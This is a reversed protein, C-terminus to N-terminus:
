YLFVLQCFHHYWVTLVFSTLIYPVNKKGSYDMCGRCHIPNYIHIYIRLLLVNNDMIFFVYIYCLDIILEYIKHYVLIYIYIYICANIYIIIHAYLINIPCVYM